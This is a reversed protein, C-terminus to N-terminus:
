RIEGATVLEEKKSVEAGAINSQGPTKNDGEKEGERGESEAEKGGEDRV